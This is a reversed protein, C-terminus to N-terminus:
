PSCIPAPLLKHRNKEMRKVIAAVTKPSFRKALSSIGEGKEIGKLIADAEDYTFGLEGEATQGAWLAPSPPKRIIQRPIGLKAALSRVETKYLGGLPLLDAGGDGHKTFYGLLIESRNGTGVVLGGEKQAMAYLIAMRVRAAINARCLRGKSVPPFSNIIAEIPLLRIRIGLRKAVLYADFIDINPTSASPLLIPLTNKAGLVRACLAAAVASDLGGSLGIIAKKRGANAFCDRIFRTCAKEAKSPLSM